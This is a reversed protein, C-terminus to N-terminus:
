ESTISQTLFTQCECSNQISFMDRQAKEVAHLFTRYLELEKEKMEDASEMLNKLREPREPRPGLQPLGPKRHKRSPSASM